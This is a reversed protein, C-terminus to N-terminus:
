VIFSQIWLMDLSNLMNFRPVICLKSAISNVIGSVGLYPSIVNWVSCYFTIELMTKRYAHPTTYSTLLQNPWVNRKGCRRVLSMESSKQL